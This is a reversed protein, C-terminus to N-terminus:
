FQIMFINQHNINEYLLEKKHLALISYVMYLGLGMGHNKSHTNNHFPKYYDELPKDLKSGNSIILLKNNDYKMQVKKDNSYKLANDLLNKVAMSFLELDVLVKEKSNCNFTVRDDTSDLMLMNISHNCLTNITYANINLVYQNSVVEEVKAFDNILFDLKEFIHTMRNKQKEDSILESVIRGKAIPTKLEHMVTRLFLQRSSLFLKTDKINKLILIYIMFFLILIIVLIIEPLYDKKVENLEDKLLLRFHPTIVHFYYRKEVIIVEFRREKIRPYQHNNLIKHVDMVPSFDFKELYNMVEFQYYKNKSINESLQKYYKIINKNSIEKNIDNFM